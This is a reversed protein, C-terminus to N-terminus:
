FKLKMHFIRKHKIKWDDLFFNFANKLRHAMHVVTQQNWSCDAPKDRANSGPRRRGLFVSVFDPLRHIDHRKGMETVM